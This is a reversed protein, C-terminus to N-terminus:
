PSPCSPPQLTPHPPPSAKSGTTPPYSRYLAQPTFIDGSIRSALVGQSLGEFGLRGPFPFKWSAFVCKKQSVYFAFLLVFRSSQINKGGKLSSSPVKSPYIIKQKGASDQSSPSPNSNKFIDITGLLVHLIRAIQNVLIPIWSITRIFIM